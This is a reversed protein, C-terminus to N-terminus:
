NKLSGKLLLCNLRSGNKQNNFTISSNFEDLITSSEEEPKIGFTELDSFRANYEEESSSESLASTKSFFVSEQELKDSMHVPMTYTTNCCVTQVSCTLPNGSVSTLLRPNNCDRQGSLIWGLKSFRLMPGFGPDVANRHM